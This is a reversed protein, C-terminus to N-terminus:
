GGLALIPSQFHRRQLGLCRWFGVDDYYVHLKSLPHGVTDPPKEISESLVEPLSLGLNDSSSSHGSYTYIGHM